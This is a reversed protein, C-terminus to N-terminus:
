CGKPIVNGVYNNCLDWRMTFVIVLCILIILFLIYLYRKPTFLGFPIPKM